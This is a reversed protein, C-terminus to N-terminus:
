LSDAVVVRANAIQSSNLARVVSQAGSIHAVIGTLTSITSTYEFFAHATACENIMSTLPVRSTSPFTLVEIKSQLSRYETAWQRAIDQLCTAGLSGSACSTALRLTANYNSSFEVVDGSLRLAPGSYAFAKKSTFLTLFSLPSPGSHELVGLCGVGVVLLAVLWYRGGATPTITWSRELLLSDPDSSPAEDGEHDSPQTPAHGDGFLGWPYEPTLLYTYASLPAQCRLYLAYASFMPGPVRGLVLAGIWLIPSLLVAGGAVLGAIVSAPLGIFLRFLVTVRNFHTAETVTEVPYSPHGKGNFPPYVDRLLFAYASIRM